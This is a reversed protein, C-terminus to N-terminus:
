AYLGEHSRKGRILWKEVEVAWFIITSLAVAIALDAVPLAETELFRQFFPAYIALLQLAFTLAVAGLLLKNSLPGVRFLSEDGSRIAMVHSLQSLTLTTFVMTQWIGPATQSYWLGTALSVLAMLAGVWVVHRGLGRGFVSEDPPRPPRRMIGHEAPEASLALAPPGDTVLNIWLIQLPLLPLGLGLFPGVLMVLIEASNSTLLYKIFKRINDYIVRGQEVAAVITAFNDDTLVMDAAEKSVDTGTIGMAVGIDARKLAPADNVGDGTMAVIHGKEQLAEVIDLKHEPSVRAYVSVEEVLGQLEEGSLGTLDRGTLIRGEETGDEAIGLETAIHRATLPHDGTIMVPRIGAQTCTEVADRAESRPPDIMGVMGLFTLDHELKDGVGDFSGLRRLGVGLVRIGDGALRTNAASIRERWGENLPEIQGDSSWVESSIELLSDVAGKTFVIYSASDRGGNLVSKLVEPTKSGSDVEHVTTMRKRGSDFPIEGVRPLVGELEPKKMGEQAAAVVLAGETPDGIARAGDDEHDELLSDNCLAGGVLLLALSPDDGVALTTRGDPGPKSDVFSGESLEVTHGAVDLVTV